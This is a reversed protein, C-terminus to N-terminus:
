LCTTVCLVFCRSRDSCSGPFFPLLPFICTTTEDQLQIMKVSSPTGCSALNPHKHYRLSHLRTMSMSRARTAMQDDTVDGTGNVDVVGTGVEAVVAAVETPANSVPM